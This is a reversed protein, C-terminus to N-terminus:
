ITQWADSNLVARKSIKKKIQFNSNNKRSAFLLLLLAGVTASHAWGEWDDGHRGGFIVLLGDVIVVDCLKPIVM